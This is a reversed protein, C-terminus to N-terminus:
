YGLFDECEFSCSFRLVDDCTQLVEWGPHRALNEETIPGDWRDPGIDSDTRWLTPMDQDRCSRTFDEPYSFANTSMGGSTRANPDQTNLCLDICVDIDSKGPIDEYPNFGEEECGAMCFVVLGFFIIGSLIVFISNKTETQM